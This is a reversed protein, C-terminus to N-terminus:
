ELLGQNQLLMEVNTQKKQQQAPRTLNSRLNMKDHPEPLVVEEFKKWMPQPVQRVIQDESDESGSSSKAEDQEQIYEEKAPYSILEEPLEIGESAIRRLQKPKRKYNKGFDHIEKILAQFEEM